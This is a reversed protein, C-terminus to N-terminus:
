AVVSSSDTEYDADETMKPRKQFPSDQQLFLIMCTQLLM